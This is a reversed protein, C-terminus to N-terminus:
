AARNLEMLSQVALEMSQFFELLKQRNMELEVQQNQLEKIEETFHQSITEMQHRHFSTFTQMLEQFSTVWQQCVHELRETCQVQHHHWQETLEQCNFVSPFPHRIDLTLPSLSPSSRSPSPPPPPPPPSLTSSPNPSTSSSSSSSSLTTTNNDNNILLPSSMIRLFSHLEFSSNTCFLLEM